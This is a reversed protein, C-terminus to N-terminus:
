DPGAGRNVKRGSGRRIQIEEVATVDQSTGVYVTKGRHGPDRGADMSLGHKRLIREWHTTLTVAPKTVKTMYSM